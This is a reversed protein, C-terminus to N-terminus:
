SPETSPRITMMLTLVDRTASFDLDYNGRQESVIHQIRNQGMGAQTSFWENANGWEPVLTQAVMVLMPIHHEIRNQESLGRIGLTVRAPANNGYIQVQIFGDSSIGNRIPGLHPEIDSHPLETFAFGEQEFKEQLAEVAVNPNQTQGGCATLLFSVLLLLLTYRKM